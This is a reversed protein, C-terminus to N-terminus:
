NQGHGAEPQTEAGAKLVGQLEQLEREIMWAAQASMSRKYFEAIERLADRAAVPIQITTLEEPM